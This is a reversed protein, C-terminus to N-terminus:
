ASEALMEALEGNEFIQMLIDSGGVFEGRIYVQPITPWDSFEKIAQRKEPDALIDVTYLPVGFQGLIQAARASFGCQPAAPSGKMYLVLPNEGVERSIETMVTGGEARTMPNSNAPSPTGSAIPLSFKAM